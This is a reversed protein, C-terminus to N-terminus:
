NMMITDERRSGTSVLKITVGLDDAVFKLYDQANQALDGFSKLSTSRKEWGPLTEYVPKVYNLDSLDLPVEKLTKGNLTYSTCVKIEDLHDLVDLKTVAISEVGSVRVAHRLSVLDLWGCRRPRGTTAGYEDGWKRLEEGTADVLETPFPGAGVRTTYAKIVGIVENIMKPGVGLGTLAGGAITNSSTAFPYTGLDVDLMAGQAGEFLIAKGEKNAMYLAKSIDMMLPQFMDRMEILWNYTKDLDAREDSSGKLFEVKISRQYELRRRLREPAFLDVVRIGCRAVKDIYAPGIGRMTTGISETGRNKEQVSDILKHYPLVLNTAPSIWLRGAYDIGKETLLKLEEAFSKPDLVVGNGIYCTKGPQVIGSPILHLIYKKDGVVITHGANAGGQFRAIIDSDAALLDVIKGKGEDGWQCGLVIKNKGM